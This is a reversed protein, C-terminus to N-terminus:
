RSVVTVGDWVHAANTYADGHASLRQLVHCVDYMMAQWAAAPITTSSVKVIIRAKCDASSSVNLMHCRADYMKEPTELSLMPMLAAHNSDCDPKSVPSDSKQEQCTWYVNM